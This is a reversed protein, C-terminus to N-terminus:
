KSNMLKYIKYHKTQQYEALYINLLSFLSYIKFINKKIEQM